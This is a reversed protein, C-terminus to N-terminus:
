PKQGKQGLYFSAAAIALTYLPEDVKIGMVSM